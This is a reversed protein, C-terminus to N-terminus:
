TEPMPLRTRSRQAVLSAKYRANHLCTVLCVFQLVARHLSIGEFSHSLVKFVGTDPYSDADIDVYNVVPPDDWM